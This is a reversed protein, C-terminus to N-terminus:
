HTIAALVAPDPATADGDVLVLLPTRWVSPDRLPDASLVVLAPAAGVELTGTIRRDDLRAAALSTASRLAGMRGLGADALRDLERPDVGPRTGANGLDTGYVLPVGAAVLSAANGATTAGSGGSFFTQITSLVPIGADAIREVLEAPLREDPVHCLEDVGADLARTVMEATLAHATVPLGAAHAAAVVAAVELPGPVPRGGSPELAIKVLDVGDAVLARVAARASEPSDVARTFGDVGWTTSPYGGPATLLPGAVATLPSGVAVTAGRSRVAAALAPPAGLDRVGVLGGRLGEAAPGFALHVHTDVVGPGIWTGPGGIRRVGDPVTVEAAPGIRDIRGRGDLLVVWDAAPVAEGGVWVTGLLALGGDLPFSGSRNGRRPRGSRCAALFAAGLSGLM